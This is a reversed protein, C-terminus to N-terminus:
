ASVNYTLVNKAVIKGTVANVAESESFVGLRKPFFTRDGRGFSTRRTAVEDPLPEYQEARSM